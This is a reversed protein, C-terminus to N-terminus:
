GKKPGKEPKGSGAMELVHLGERALQALSPQVKKPAQPYSLCLSVMALTSSGATSAKHYGDCLGLTKLIAPIFSRAYTHM